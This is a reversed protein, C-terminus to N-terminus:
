VLSSSTTANIGTGNSSVNCNSINVVGATDLIGTGNNKFESNRLTALGSGDNFSFGSGTCNSVQTNDVTVSIVQTTNVNIGNSSQNMIRVNEVLLSKGSVFSIGNLGITSGGGNINLNRLRVSITGPAGSASDNIVVGNIGGSNLISANTGAGDITISKTITITGFGGPDIANIEGNAATKSIAGSFTKCPATRSCPNVDDGVGSVWTRTAQAQALSVFALSFVLVALSQLVFRFKNM